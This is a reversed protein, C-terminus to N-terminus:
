AADTETEHETHTASQAARRRFYALRVVARKATALLSRRRCTDRSRSQCPSGFDSRVHQVRDTIGTLDIGHGTWHSGPPRQRDRQWYRFLLYATLVVAISLM